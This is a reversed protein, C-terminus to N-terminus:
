RKLLGITDQYYATSKDFQGKLSDNDNTLRDILGKLKLNQKEIIELNNFHSRKLLEIEDLYNSDLRQRLDELDKKHDAQM